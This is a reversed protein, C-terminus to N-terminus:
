RPRKSITAVLESLDPPTALYARTPDTAIQIATDRLRRLAMADAPHMLLEFPAINLATAAENLTDRNYRQKGTVLESAKRKDWGTRECLRAQRLQLTELWAPLFWDFGVSESMNWDYSRIPAVDNRIKTIKAM